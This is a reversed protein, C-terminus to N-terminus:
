FWMDNSETPETLVKTAKCYDCLCCREPEVINHKIADFHPALEQVKKMQTDIDEQVIHVIDIDPVREKTVAALYFPLKKGTNQEVITQYVAAQLAYNYEMFWPVRGCEDPDYVSSFSKTTKLDVIKDDHLCDIKIKFKVGAITGTMIQQYEGDLYEMFMKDRRCREIMTDALVYDSKLTGDRKFLEPNETKFRELDGTLAEDVYSGILMASSRERTYEGRLEALAAAQCRMFSKFQSNSMFSIEAEKSFYNDATLEM